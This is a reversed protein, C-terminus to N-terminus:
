HTLAFCRSVSSNRLTPQAAVCLIGGPLAVIEALYVPTPAPTGRPIASASSRHTEQGRNKGQNRSINFIEHAAVNVRLELRLTRHELRAGGARRKEAVASRGQTLKAVAVPTVGAVTSTM